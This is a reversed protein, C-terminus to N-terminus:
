KWFSIHKAEEKSMDRWFKSLDPEDSLDALKVYVDCAIEDIERRLYIIRAIPIETM